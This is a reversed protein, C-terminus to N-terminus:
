RDGNVNHGTVAVTLDLVRQDSPRPSQPSAQCLPGSLRRQRLDQEGRHHGRRTVAGARGGNAACSSALSRPSKEGRMEQEDRRGPAGM